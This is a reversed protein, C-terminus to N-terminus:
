RRARAGRGWSVLRRAPNSRSSINDVVRVWDPQGHFEVSLSEVALVPQGTM